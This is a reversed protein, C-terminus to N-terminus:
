TAIQELRYLSLEGLVTWAQTDRVHNSHDVMLYNEAIKM